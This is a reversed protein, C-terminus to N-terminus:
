ACRKSDSAAAEVAVERKAGQLTQVDVLGVCGLRSMPLLAVFAFSQHHPRWRAECGSQHHVDLRALVRLVVVGEAGGGQLVRAHQTHCAFRFCGAVSSGFKAPPAGHHPARSVLFDGHAYIDHAIAALVHDVTRVQRSMTPLRFAAAFLAEHVFM